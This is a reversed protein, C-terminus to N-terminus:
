RGKNIQDFYGKIHKEFSKPIKQNSLADAASGSNTEVEGQINFTSFGKTQSTPPATGEVIASGKTYQNKSQTKYTSTNDPAEARKGDGIGRMNGQGDGRNRQNNKGLQNFGEGFQNGFLPFRELQVQVDLTADGGFASATGHATLSGKGSVIRLTELTAASGDLTMRLEVPDYTVGLPNAYPQEEPRVLNRRRLEVRDFREREHTVLQVLAQNTNRGERIVLHRLYGEHKAQDYAPLREEHAWETITNRIRNGLDTTLHCKDIGLVEDWRGARHLGLIPAGGDPGPLLHGTVAALM